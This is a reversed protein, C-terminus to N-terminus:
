DRRMTGTTRTRTAAVCETPISRGRYAVYSGVLLAFLICSFLPMAPAVGGPSYCMGQSAIVLGNRQDVATPSRLWILPTTFLWILNLLMIVGLVAIQYKFLQLDKIFLHRLKYNNFLRVLRWAKLFLASYMLAFGISFLWPQVQCAADLYANRQFMPDTPFVAVPQLWSDQQGLAFTTSMMIIAGGLIQLLFPPSSNRVLKRNRHAVTWVALAACVAMCLAAIAYLSYLLLPPILQLDQNEQLLSVGNCSLSALKANTLAVIDVHQGTDSAVVTNLGAAGFGGMNYAQLTNHNLSFNLFQAITNAVRCGVTDNTVPDLVSDNRM